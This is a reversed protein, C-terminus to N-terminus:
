VSTTVATTRQAWHPVAGRALIPLRVLCALLGLVIVAAMSIPAEHSIVAFCIPGSLLVGLLTLQTVLGSTAGISSESPAVNPVFSWMGTLVGSFFMLFWSCAISAAAGIPLSYIAIAPIGTALISFVGVKVPSLRTQLLKGFTLCGIMNLVMAVINCGNVFMLDAGYEKQLYPGLTSIIGVHLFADGGISIGLMYPWPSRIVRGLGSIRSRQESPKERSPISAMLMLIVMFAVVGHAIFEYRWNGAVWSATLFPVIMSMPVFTAWVAIAMHRQVAPTVRILLTIASVSMLVYGLGNIVRGALLMTLDGASVVLVDGAVLVFTGIILVLKDGFRDVLYGVALAGLVVMLSPLSVILGVMAPGDPHFEAAISDLVPIAGGVSMAALVGLSYIVLLKYLASEFLKNM